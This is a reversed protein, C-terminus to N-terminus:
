AQQKDVWENRLLSYLRHSVFRDSVWENERMIGERRFGLREPIACSKHNEVGCRIEIRHLNLKSFSYDILAACSKTMIGRGQYGKDLWYGIIAFRHDWNLDAYGIVGCLEKNYWIGSSFVGSKSFKELMENIFMKTDKVSTNRDVWYLWKRLQNRNADVLAYVRDADHDQLLKLCIEDDVKYNFM